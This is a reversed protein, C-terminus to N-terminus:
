GGKKNLAEVMLDALHESGRTFWCIIPPVAFVEGESDLLVEEIGVADTWPPNEVNWKNIAVRYITKM